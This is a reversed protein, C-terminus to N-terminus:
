LNEGYRQLWMMKYKKTKHQQTKSLIKMTRSKFICQQKTNQPKWLNCELYEASKARM